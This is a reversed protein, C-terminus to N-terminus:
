AMFLSRFPPKFIQLFSAGITMFIDMLFIDIYFEESILVAFVTMIHDGPAPHFKIVVRGAKFKGPLMRLGIAFLAMELGIRISRDHLTKGVQVVPTQVAMRVHMVLLKFCFLIIGAGSAMTKVPPLRDPEIMVRGSEFEVATVFVYGTNLAM